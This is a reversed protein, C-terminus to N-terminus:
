VKLRLTIRRWLIVWVWVGVVLGMGRGILIRVIIVVDRTTKRLLTPNRLMLWWGRRLVGVIVLMRRLIGVVLLMRRLIGVKLSRNSLIRVKLSGSRLVGVRLYGIGRISPVVLVLPVRPSLPEWGWLTSVRVLKLVRALQVVLSKNLHM